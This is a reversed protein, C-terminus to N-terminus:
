FGRVLINATRPVPTGGNTVHFVLSALTNTTIVLTDGAQEDTITIQVQPLVANGPGSNFPAATNSGNPTYIITLGGTPVTENVYDDIRDPVNVTYNFDSVVAQVQPSSSNLDLQFNFYQGLYTGPIFTQWAGFIADGQAIQMQPYVNLNETASNGLIDLAGLWDNVNFVSLGIYQGIATWAVSITCAVPRGVNIQHGSPITYTGSTGFGLLYFIDSVALWSTQTLVNGTDDLVIELTEGIVTGASRASGTFAGTLRTSFEDVFDVTNSQTLTGTLTISVPEGYVAVGPSPNAYPAVWYTGDGPVLFPPGAVRGLSQAGLWSSGFRIEYQLPRFDVVPTWAIATNTGQIIDTLNTVPLPPTTLALGQLTYSYTPVTALTQQVRGAADMAIFKVYVVQGIQQATFPIKAIGAGNLMALVAQPPSTEITSGLVGRYITTCSYDNGSVADANEFSVLEYEVQSGGGGSGIYALNANQAAAPASVSSLTGQLLDVSLTNTTDITASGAPATAISPLPTILDGMVAQTPAAAAQSWSNGDFSFWVQAGGFNFGGNGGSVVTWVQLGGSLEEPPEFIVPTNIYPASIGGQVQALPVDAPLTPSYSTAGVQAGKMKITNDTGYDVTQVYVTATETGSGDEDEYVLAVVDGPDIGLLYIPVTWEYTTRGQWTLFMAKEVIAKADTANMSIPVTFVQQTVTNVVTRPRQYTATAVQYDITPLLYQLTITQPLSLDDLRTEKVKEENPGTVDEARAGLDADQVSVTAVGTQPVFKIKWDSEIGDFFYCQALASIAQQASIQQNLLYGVILQDGLATTDIQESTLGANECIDQIVYPLSVLYPAATVTSGSTVEVIQNGQNQYALVGPGPLSAPGGYPQDIQGVVEFAFIPISNGFQSTLNFGALMLYATNRFAPVNAGFTAALTPDQGQDATGLYLNFETASFNVFAAGAGSGQNFVVRNPNKSWLIQGNAWVTTVDTIPGNCIGIAMDVLYNATSGSGGGGGGGGKGGGGKGGGGNSVDVETLQSSYLLQGPVRALGYVQPIPLGFSAGGVTTDTLKGSVPNGQMSSMIESDIFGGLMAGVMAGVPGGVMFGAAGLVLTAM